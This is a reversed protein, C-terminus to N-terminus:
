YRLAAAVGGAAELGEHGDLFAIQGDSALVRRVWEEGLDVAEVPRECRPCGLPVREGLEGCSACAWGPRRFGKLLFLEHVRGDRVATCVAVTGLARGGDRDLVRQLRGAAERDRARALAALSREVVEASGAHPDVRLRAALREQIRRPVEREFAAVIEDPGAVVVRCGGREDVWATMRDALRRLNRHLHDEVHRQYRAQSWGGQEHRGPFEEDEFRWTRVVGGLHFEYLSGGESGVHALIGRQGEWLNEVAQKLFPRDACQVEDRFPIYSRVIRYVGLGSCAFVAVGNYEEDWERAVLGKVYHEIKERDAEVGAGAEAPESGLCERLRSKVFIRVRERERESNWRTNLYVTFFPHETRALRALRRIERDLDM